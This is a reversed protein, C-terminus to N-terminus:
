KMSCAIRFGLGSGRNYPFFQKRNSVRCDSPFRAVSGGRVIRREGTDPGQPNVQHTEKYAGFYDECWEWVLGSMDYLGLENPQKMGVHMLTDSSNEAYWAVEDIDDSGSYILAESKNGGRAAYEWEAETPLRYPKNEKKSLWKCYATADNWTVHVVPFNLDSSDRLEGISNCRWTATKLFIDKGDIAIWSGYATHGPGGNGRESDTVYGSERIFEGFQRVTVPYKSLFFTNITVEHAPIEEKYSFQEQEPTAGM